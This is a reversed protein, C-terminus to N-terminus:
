LLFMIGIYDTHVWRRMSHCCNGGWFAFMELDVVRDKLFSRDHSVTSVIGTFGDLYERPMELTEIDLSSYTMQSTLTM